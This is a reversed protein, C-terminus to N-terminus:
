SVPQVGMNSLADSMITSFVYTASEAALLPTGNLGVYVLVQADDANAYGIMSALLRGAEYGGHEVDVMEARTATM